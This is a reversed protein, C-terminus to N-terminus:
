IIGQKTRRRSPLLSSLSVCIGVVWLAPLLSFVL